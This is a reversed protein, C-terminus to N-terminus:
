SPRPRCTMTLTAGGGCAWSLLAIPLTLVALVPACLCSIIADLYNEGMMANDAGSGPWRRSESTLKEFLANPRFCIFNLASQIWGFWDYELAFTSRGVIEFGNEVLFRGLTASDFHYRHRPVDLHLWRRGFVRAQWSSANPVTVQFLGGPVVIRAAWRVLEDPRLVHELVHWCTIVDFAHGFGECEAEEPMKAQVGMAQLDRLSSPNIETVSVQWGGDRMAIAFDGWGCGIDLFRGAFGRPFQSTVMRRRLAIRMRDTFAHRNGRYRASYHREMFDDGPMPITAGIGCRACAAVCSKELTIYDIVNEMLTIWDHARCLPCLLPEIGKTRSVIVAQDIDPDILGM